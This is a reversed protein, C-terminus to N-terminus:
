FISGGWVFDSFKPNHFNKGVLIQKKISLSSAIRKLYALDSPSPSEKVEIAIKGNYNHVNGSTTSATSNATLLRDASPGTLNFGAGPAASITWGVWGTPYTTSTHALGSFDQSYPLTQAAPNTQGFTSVSISIFFFIMLRTCWQVFNGPPNAFPKLHTTM